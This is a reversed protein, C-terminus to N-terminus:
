RRCGYEKLDENTVNEVSFKTFINIISDKNKKDTKLKNYIIKDPSKGFDFYSYAHQRYFHSRWFEKDTFWKKFSIMRNMLPNIDCKHLYIMCNRDEESYHSHSHFRKVRAIVQEYKSLIEIPELLHFYRVGILNLGETYHPHLIIVNTDKSNNFIDVDKMKDKELYIHKINYKTLYASLIKGGCIEFNSYIAIKKGVNMKINKIIFNFKSINTLNDNYEYGYGKKKLKDFNLYNGINGIKLGIDNLAEKKLLMDFKINYNKLDFIDLSQVEKESLNGKVFNIFMDNQFNNYTHTKISIKTRPFHQSLAKPIASYSIYRRGYKILKKYNINFFSNEVNNLKKRDIHIKHLFLSFISKYIISTAALIFGVLIQKKIYNVENELSKMNYFLAIDDINFNLKMQLLERKERDASDRNFLQLQLFSYTYPDYKFSGIAGNFTLIKLIKYLKDEKFKEYINYYNKNINIDQKLYYKKYLDNEAIKQFEFYNSIYEDNINSYLEKMQKIHTKVFNDEKIKKNMVQNNELDIKQIIDKNVEIIKEFNLGDFKKMFFFQKYEKFYDNNNKIKENFFKKLNETWKNIKALNYIEKSFYEKQEVIYKNVHEHFIFLLERDNDNNNYITIDNKTKKENDKKSLQYEILLDKIEDKYDQLFTYNTTNRKEYDSEYLLKRSFKKLIKSFIKHNIREENFINKEFDSKEIFELGFNNNTLQYLYKYLTYFENSTIKKNDFEKINKIFENDYKYYFMQIIFIILFINFFTNIIFDIIWIFIGKFYRKKGFNKYFLNNNTPFNKSDSAINLLHCIDYKESYVPTGSLLIKKEFQLCKNYITSSIENNKYLLPLLNHVEDIILYNNNKQSIDKSEIFEEYSYINIKYRNM